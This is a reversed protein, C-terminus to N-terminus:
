SVVIRGRMGLLSHFTRGCHVKYTGAAPVLTVQTATGGKLDVKGGPVSGSVIRSSAFFSRSTFDHRSRSRNAFLLTVPQGAQLRVTSPSFAFSSLEIPVQLPAESSRVPSGLALAVAAIAAARFALMRVEM